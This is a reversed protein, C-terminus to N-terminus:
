WNIRNDGRGDGDTLLIGVTLHLIFLVLMPLAMRTLYIKLGFAQMKWALLKELWVVKLYSLQLDRNKMELIEEILRTFPSAPGKSSDAVSTVLSTEWRHFETTNYPTTALVFEWFCDNRFTRGPDNVPPTRYLKNGFSCFGPLPLTVLTKNPESEVVQSKTGFVGQLDHWINEARRRWRSLKDVSNSINSTTAGIKVQVAGIDNVLWPYLSIYRMFSLTAGPRAKCALPLACTIPVSNELLRNKDQRFRRFFADVHTTRQERYDSNCAMAFTSPFLPKSDDYSRDEYICGFYPGLTDAYQGGGFFIDNPNSQRLGRLGYEGWLLHKPMVYASRSRLGYNIEDQVVFTHPKFYAYFNTSSSIAQNPTSIWGGPMTVHASKHIVFTDYWADEELFHPSMVTWRPIPMPAGSYSSYMSSMKYVRLVYHYDMNFIEIHEVEDGAIKIDTAYLVRVVESDSDLMSAPPGISIIHYENKMIVGFVSVRQKPAWPYTFSFLHPVFFRRLDSTNEQRWSSSQHAYVSTYYKSQRRTDEANAAIARGHILPMAFDDNRDMVGPKWEFKCVPTVEKRAVLEPLAVIRDSVHDFYQEIAKIKKFVEPLSILIGKMGFLRLLGQSTRTIQAPYMAFINLGTTENFGIRLPVYQPWQSDKVREHYILQLNYTSLVNVVVSSDNLTVVTITKCKPSYRVNHTQQAISDKM